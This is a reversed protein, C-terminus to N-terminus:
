WTQEEPPVVVAFGYSVTVTVIAAIHAESLVDNGYRFTQPDDDVVLVRAQQGGVQM